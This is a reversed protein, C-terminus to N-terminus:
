SKKRKNFRKELKENFKAFDIGGQNMRLNILRDLKEPTYVSFIREETDIGLMMASIQLRLINDNTYSKETDTDVVNPVANNYKSKKQALVNNTPVIAAMSQGGRLSSKTGPKQLELWHINEDAHHEFVVDFGQSLAWQKILRGPTYCHFNQEVLRVAHSFDCDNYTFGFVGGPRLLEFMETIYNQIIGIPKYQFYNHCFVFGFQNKPLDKFIPNKTYESIVYKRVRAQYEPTFRVMAPLLLDAHTDVVYLPDLAVMNEIQSEHGPRIIMGPFKWDIYLSSRTEILSKTADSINKKRNLIYDVEEHRMTEYLVKSQKFYGIENNEIAQLAAYKISDIINEFNILVNHVVLQSTDMDELQEQIPLDARKIIEIVSDLESLATKAVTLVTLKDITNKQAVIESLIM